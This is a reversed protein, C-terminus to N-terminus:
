RSPVYMATFTGVRLHVLYLLALDMLLTKNNTRHTVSDREARSGARRFGRCFYRRDHLACVLKAHFFGRSLFTISGQTQLHTLTSFKIKM